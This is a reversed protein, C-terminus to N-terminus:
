TPVPKSGNPSAILGSSLKFVLIIYNRLMLVSKVYRGLNSSRDSKSEIRKISFGGLKEHYTVNVYVLRNPM